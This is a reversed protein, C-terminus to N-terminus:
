KQERIIYKRKNFINIESFLTKNEDKVQTLEKNFATIQEDLQPIYNISHKITNMDMQDQEYLENGQITINM